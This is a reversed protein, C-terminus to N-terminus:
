TQDQGNHREDIKKQCCAQCLRLGWSTASANKLDKGCGTCLVAQADDNSMQARGRSVPSKEM